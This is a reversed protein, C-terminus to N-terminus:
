WWWRWWAVINDDGNDVGYNDGDDDADNHGINYKRMFVAVSRNSEWVPLCRNPNTAVLPVIRELQISSGRWEILTAWKTPYWAVELVVSNRVRKTANYIKLLESLSWCTPHLGFDKYYESWSFIVICYM